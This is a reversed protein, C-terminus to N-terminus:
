GAELLSTVASIEADSLQPLPNIWGCRWEDEQRTTSRVFIFEMLSAGAREALALCPGAMSKPEGIAVDGIVLLRQTEDRVPELWVTPATGVISSMVPSFNAVQSLAMGALPQFASFGPLSMLRANTTFHAARTPLGVEGALKFWELITRNSYSFGRVGARNVVPCRLSTLWSLLLAFMEGVGYERDRVDFTVFNASDLYRLRNFVATIDDSTVCRGDRLRLTTRTINNDHTYSWGTGVSLEKDNLFAVRDAGQRACLEKYVSMATADDNNTLVLFM